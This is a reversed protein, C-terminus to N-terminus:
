TTAVAGNTSRFNAAAIEGGVSDRDVSQWASGSPCPVTSIPEHLRDNWSRTIATLRLGNLTGIWLFVTTTQASLLHPTSYAEQLRWATLANRLRAASAFGVTVAPTLPLHCPRDDSSATRLGIVAAHTRDRADLKALINKIQGKVAEETISLRAAIEKNSL